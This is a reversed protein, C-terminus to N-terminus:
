AVRHRRSFGMGLLGLGLLGLTMPEPVSFSASGNLTAQRTYTNYTVGDIVTTGSLAPVQNTDLNTDVRATIVMGQGILSNFDTGDPFFFRGATASTVDGFLLFNAIDGGSGTVDITMVLPDAGGPDRPLGTTDYYINIEGDGYAALISSPNPVGASQVQGYLTYTFYLQWTQNYGATDQGLFSPILSMGGYYNALNIPPGINAVVTDIVTDGTDVGNGDLDIYTSQATWDLGFQLITETCGDGTGAPACIFFPDAMAVGSAVALAGGMALGSILKLNAM